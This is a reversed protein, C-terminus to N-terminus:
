GSNTLALSHYAGSAVAAINSLMTVEVPFRRDITTGDGLQGFQNNGWAKVKGNGLVVLNREKEVAIPIRIIGNLVVTAPDIQLSATCNKGGITILFIANGATAPTGSIQYTLNGNGNALNGTALIATLGTVGTSIITDAKYAAGNGGSYSITYQGSYATAEVAVTSFNGSGCNLSSVVPATPNPPPPPPPPNSVGPICSECSYEKHCSFCLLLFFSFITLRWAM